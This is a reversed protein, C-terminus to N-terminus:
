EAARCNGTCGVHGCLKCCTGWIAERFGPAQRGHNKAARHEYLWIIAGYFYLSVKTQWCPIQNQVYQARHLLVRLVEQSTTGPSTGVNGPFKKGERKVFQLRQIGSDGDLSALEYYHGADLVRM